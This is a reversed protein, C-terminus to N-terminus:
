MMHKQVSSAYGRRVQEEVSCPQMHVKCLARISLSTECNTIYKVPPVRFAHHSTNPLDFTAGRGPPRRTKPPHNGPRQSRSSTPSSLIYCICALPLISALCLVLTKDSVTNQQVGRLLRCTPFLFNKFRTPFQKWCVALFKVRNRSLLRAFIRAANPEVAFGV